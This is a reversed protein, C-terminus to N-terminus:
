LAEKMFVENGTTYAQHVAEAVRVPYILEELSLPQMKKHLMDAYIKLEEDFITSVDFKQFVIGNKAYLTCSSEFVGETYHMSVAVDGYDAIVVVADNIRKALVSRMTNGFITAVIEILHAAYFYFGDYEINVFINFNVSASILKKEKRLDRVTEAMRLVDPAYKCASGGCILAKHKKALRVLEKAEEISVAIPKDIFLPIGREIFRKAQKFHVSGRRSTIMVSDCDDFDSLDFVAQAGVKEALIGASKGEGYMKVVRMDKYRFNGNEDPLNLAKSFSEAHSNETGIIGIKM